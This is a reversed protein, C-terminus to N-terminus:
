DFSDLAAHDDIASTIRHIMEKSTAETQMEPLLPPPCLTPTWMLLASFAQQRYGRLLAAPDLRIGFRDQLRERYRRLLAQEWARRDDVALTTMLAYAVDRVGLGRCVRAWDSLGMHGDGTIYWNGLHVDSHIVTRPGAGHLEAARVAAPWVEARRAMVAPPIVDAARTMAQEHGQETGTRRATNFFSEYTDLWALDGAVARRGDVETFSGHLEALTDVIGEAQTRDIADRVRCFRAGRTVTLDEFLHISRGGLADRASHLCVPAELRLQPRLEMLFRGETPAVMGASLRTALSPTTKAFLREPLRAARGIANWGVSIARRVSSGADGGTIRVEDARAGAVDRALVATIWDPTVAEASWPVDAATVAPPRTLHDWLAHAAYQSRRRLQTSTIM